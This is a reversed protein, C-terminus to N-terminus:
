GERARVQLSLGGFPIRRASRASVKLYGRTIQTKSKTCEQLLPGEVKVKTSLDLYKLSGVCV